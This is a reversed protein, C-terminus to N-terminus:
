VQIVIQTVAQVHVCWIDLSPLVPLLSILIQMKLPLFSKKGKQSIKSVGYVAKARYRPVLGETNKDRSVLAIPEM